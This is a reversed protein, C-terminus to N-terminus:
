LEVTYGASMWYLNRPLKQRPTYTFNPNGIQLIGEITSNVLANVPGYIRSPDTVLGDTQNSGGDLWVPLGRDHEDEDFFRLNPRHAAHFGITFGGITFSLSATVDRWGQIHESVLYGAGVGPIIAFKGGISIEHEYQLHYYVDSSSIDLLVEATLDTFFPPAYNFFIETAPPEKGIPNIPADSTLGFGINGARTETEYGFTLILKDLRKLGVEEKYLKPVNLSGWDSPAACEDPLPAGGATAIYDCLLKLTGQTEPIMSNQIATVQESIGGEVGALLDDGGPGTQFIGDVDRDNRGALAFSGFIEFFLGVQPFKFLLTPTYVWAGTTSGYPVHKQVAYNAFMDEGRDVYNSVFTNDLEVTLIPKDDEIKLVEEWAPDQLAGVREPPQEQAAISSVSLLLFSVLTYTIFHHPFRKKCM